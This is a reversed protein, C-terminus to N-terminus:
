FGAYYYKADLTNVKIRDTWVSQKAMQWITIVNTTPDQYATALVLYATTDDTTPMYSLSAVVPYAPVASVHATNDDPYKKNASDYSTELVVYSYHSTPNFSWTNSYNPNAAMTTTTGEWMPSLNNVLGPVMKFYYDGSSGGTGHGNNTVMWPFPEKKYIPLHAQWEAFIDINTGTSTRSFGYGTGAELKSM